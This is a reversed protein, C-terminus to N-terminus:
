NFIILEKQERKCFFHKEKAERFCAKGCYVKPLDPRPIEKVLSCGNDGDMIYKEEPSSAVYAMFIAASLVGISIWCCIWFDKETM